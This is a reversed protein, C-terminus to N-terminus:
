ITLGLKKSIKDLDIDLKKIKKVKGGEGDGFLSDSDDALYAIGDDWIISWYPSDDDGFGSGDCITQCNFHNALFYSLLITMSQFKESSIHTPYKYIILGFPFESENSVTSIFVNTPNEIIDAIDGIFVSETAFFSCMSTTLEKISIIKSLAIDMIKSVMRTSLCGNM